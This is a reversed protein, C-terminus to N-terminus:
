SVLISLQYAIEHDKFFNKWDSQNKPIIGGTGWWPGYGQPHSEYSGLGVYIEDDVLIEDM